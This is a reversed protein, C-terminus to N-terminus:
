WSELVKGPEESGTCEVKPRWEAQLVEMQRSWFEVLGKQWSSLELESRNGM